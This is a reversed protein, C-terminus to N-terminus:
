NLSGTAVHRGARENALAMARGFEVGSALEMFLTASFVDGAGITAGVAEQVKLADLELHQDGRYGICGNSGRTVVVSQALETLPVSFHATESESLVVADCNSAWWTPASHALGLAATEHNRTRLFGQPTVGVFKAESLHEFGGEAIEDLIPAIHVVDATALHGTVESFRIQDASTPVSRPGLHTEETFRMVTDEVSPQVILEVGTGLEARVAAELEATGSTIITVKWGRQQAVRAAFLVSGGLERHLRGGAPIEDWCVSGVALYTKIAM